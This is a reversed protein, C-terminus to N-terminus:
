RCLRRPRNCVTRWRNSRWYWCGRRCQRDRWRWAAFGRSSSRRGAAPRLPGTPVRAGGCFSRAGSFRWCVPSLMRCRAAVPREKLTGHCRRGAAPRLAPCVVGAPMPLTGCGRGTRDCWRRWGRQAWPATFSLQCADGEEREKWFSAAMAFVEASCNRRAIKGLDREGCGEM